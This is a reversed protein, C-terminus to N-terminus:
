FYCKEFHIVSEQNGVQWKNGDPDEIGFTDELKDCNEKWKEKGLFREVRRYTAMVDRKKLRFFMADEKTSHESSEEVTLSLDELQFHIRYENMTDPMRDFLARYFVLSNNINMTKIHYMNM